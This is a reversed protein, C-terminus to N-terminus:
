AGADSRRMPDTMRIIASVSRQNFGKFGRNRQIIELHSGVAGQGTFRAADNESILRSALLRGMRDKPPVWREAETFSQKLFDFNSFQNMSVVERAKLSDRMGQFDSGL